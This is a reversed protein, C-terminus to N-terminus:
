TCEQEFKSATVKTIRQIHPLQRFTAITMPQLRPRPEIHRTKGRAQTYREHRYTRDHDKPQIQVYIIANPNIEYESEALPKESMWSGRKTQPTSSKRMCADYYHIIHYRRLTSVEKTQGTNEDQEVKTSTELVVDPEQIEVYEQFDGAIMRLAVALWSTFHTIRQQCMGCLIHTRVGNRDELSCKQEPCHYNYSLTWMNNEYFTFWVTQGEDDVASFTWHDNEQLFSFAAVQLTHLLRPQELEIYVSTSPTRLPAKDTNHRLAEAMMWASHMWLYKYSKEITETKAQSQKKLFRDILLPNTIVIPKKAPNPLSTPKPPPPSKTETTIHTTPDHYKIPEPVSLKTKTQNPKPTISPTLVNEPFTVVHNHLIDSAQQSVTPPLDFRKAWVLSSSSYDKVLTLGIYKTKTFAKIINFDQQDSLHLSCTFSQNLYFQLLVISGRSHSHYYDILETQLYSDEPTPINHFLKCVLVPMNNSQLFIKIRLKKSKMTSLWQELYEM